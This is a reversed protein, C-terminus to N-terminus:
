GFNSAYPATAFNSFAGFGTSQPLGQPWAPTSAVWGGPAPTSAAARAAPTSATARAAPTSATAAPATGTLQQVRAVLDAASSRAGWYLALYNVGVTAFAAGTAIGFVPYGLAVGAGAVIAGSALLIGAQAVAGLNLSQMSVLLMVGTGLVAAGLAVGLGKLVRMFTSGSMGSDNRKRRSRGYGNRKRGRAHGRKHGNHKSHKHGRRAARNKAM